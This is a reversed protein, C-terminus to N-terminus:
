EFWRPYPDDDRYTMTPALDDTTKRGVWAAHVTLGACFAAFCLLLTVTVSLNM